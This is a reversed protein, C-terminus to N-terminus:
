SGPDLSTRMTLEMVGGGAPLVREAYILVWPYQRLLKDLTSSNSKKLLSM